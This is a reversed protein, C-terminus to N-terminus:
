AAGRRVDAAFQEFEASLRQMLQEDGDTMEPEDSVGRVLIEFVAQAGAYFGRRTEQRQERGATPPMVMQEYSQWQAAITAGYKPATV